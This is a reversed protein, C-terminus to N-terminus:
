RAIWWGDLVKNLVEVVVSKDFSLEDEFAAKYSKLSLFLEGTTLISSAIFRFIRPM